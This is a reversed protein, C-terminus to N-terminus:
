FHFHQTYDKELVICFMPWIQCYLYFNHSNKKNIEVHLKNWNTVRKRPSTKVMGKVNEKKRKKQM